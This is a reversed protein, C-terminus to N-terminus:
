GRTLAKRLLSLLERSREAAIAFMAVVYVVAGVVIEVVLAHAPHTVGGGPLAHATLWVAVTMVVCAAFPQLFGVMLRWPSPGERAVMAVGAIAMAGFAIGVAASAVVLGFRALVAIGGLLVCAKGIELLMLRNTKSDAVM